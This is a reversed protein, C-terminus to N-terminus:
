NRVNKVNYSTTIIYGYKNATILTYKHKMRSSIGISSFCAQISNLYILVPNLVHSIHYLSYQITQIYWLMTVEPVSGLVPELIVYENNDEFNNEDNNNVPHIELRQLQDELDWKEEREAPIDIEM